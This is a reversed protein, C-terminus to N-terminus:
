FGVSQEGFGPNSDGFVPSSQDFGAAPEETQVTPRGAGREKKKGLFRLEHVIVKWYSRNTKKARQEMMPGVVMLTDGKHVYNKITEALKGYASCNFWTTRKKDGFGEDAAISFEAVQTGSALFKHEPDKGTRGVVTIRNFM